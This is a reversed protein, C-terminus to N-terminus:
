SKMVFVPLSGIELFTFLYTGMELPFHIFFPSNTTKNETTKKTLDADELLRKKRLVVGM